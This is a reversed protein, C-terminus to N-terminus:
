KYENKAGIDMLVNVKNNNKLQLKPRNESNPKSYLELPEIQIGNPHNYIIGPVCTYIFNNNNATEAPLTVVTGQNNNIELTVRYHYFSGTGNSQASYAVPVVAIIDDNLRIDIIECSKESSRGVIDGRHSVAGNGFNILSPIKHKKGGLGKEKFIAGFTAVAIEEGTKLMILAYIDYDTGSKWSVTTTIKSTKQILVARDGKKLSIQGTQTPIPNNTKVSSSIDISPSGKGKCFACSPNGEEQKCFLCVAMTKSQPKNVPLSGLPSSTAKSSKGKCFACSPNGEEQKCFVCVAM